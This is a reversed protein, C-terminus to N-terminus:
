RRIYEIIPPMIEGVFDAIVRDGTEIDFNGDISVRILLAPRPTGLFTSIIISFQQRYYSSLIRDGFSYWYYVLSMGHPGRFLFRHSEITGGEWELEREGEEVMETRGGVYCYEPPHFSARNSACELLYLSVNYIGQRYRRLIVNETGLLRKDRASVLMEEGEWNDIKLPINRLDDASSERRSGMGSLCLIVASILLLVMSLIYAWKKNLSSAM